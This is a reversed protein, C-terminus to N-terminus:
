AGVSVCVVCGHVRMHVVVWAAFLLCCSVLFLSRGWERGAQSDSAREWARHSESWRVAAGPNAYENHSEDIASIQM